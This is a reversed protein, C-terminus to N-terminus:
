KRPTGGDKRGMRREGREQRDWPRVGRLGSGSGAGPDDVAAIVTSFSLVLALVTDAFGRVIFPETRAQLGTELLIGAILGAVAGGIAFSKALYRNDFVAGLSLGLLAGILLILAVRLLGHYGDSAADGARENMLHWRQGNEYIQDFAGTVGEARKVDYFAGGTEAAISQLLRIGEQESSNIGVTHVQTQQLRYPTLVKATDVESFGDSILIVAAKRDPLREKEMHEMAVTLARGIDTRGVPEGVTNLKEAIQERAGADKLRTMPYVQRPQENFTFVAVRKSDDMKRILAQAAQLSQKEPDTSKMSESMDILLVYDQPKDRNGLQLGYIFQFLVGAVFLLLLTSPLLLKWGDRAYRLRWSRGNLQPSVVEAVLCCLGVVLAFQGFYLGTLLTEHMAGEWRDLMIEGIIFGIIGGVVSLVTLLGNWKRQKV